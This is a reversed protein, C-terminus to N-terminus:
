IPVEENDLEVYLNDIKLTSLASMFHEITRVNVGNKHLDTSMQTKTISANEAKIFVMPDSDVRVFVIGSNEPAPMLRMNVSVGSHLGIGQVSISQGITHQKM